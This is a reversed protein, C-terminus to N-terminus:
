RVCERAGPHSKDVDHISFDVSFDSISKQVKSRVFSKGELVAIVEKRVRGSLARDIPLEGKKNKHQL